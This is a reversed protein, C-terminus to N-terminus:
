EEGLRTKGEEEVRMEVEEMELNMEVGFGMRKIVFFLLLKMQTARESKSVM